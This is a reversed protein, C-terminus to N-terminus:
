INIFKEFGSTMTALGKNDIIYGELDKQKEIFNIGYSGMAFAPTAFRDAEYVNPGIVTLSKIEEISEDRSNPNYIHQGRIYTGSTAIGCNTLYVTKVIEGQKFPNEIGIKWKENKENLGGVEVDGGANIYFNNYGADRIIKSAKYISWGKVIGSPDLLGSNNRIDFYGDTMQKTQEALLFIQQMDSSFNLNQIEGRNIKSIESDKKYVSFKNDIYQFYNYVDDVIKNAHENFNTALAVTIPMGMVLRTDIIM